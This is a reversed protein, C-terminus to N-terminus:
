EMNDRKRLANEKLIFTWSKKASFSKDNKTFEDPPSILFKILLSVFSISYFALYSFDWSYRLVWSGRTIEHAVVAINSRLQLMKFVFSLVYVINDPCCHDIYYTKLKLINLNKKYESIIFSEFNCEGTWTGISFITSSQYNHRM